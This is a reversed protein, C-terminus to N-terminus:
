DTLIDRFRVQTNLDLLWRNSVPGFTPESFVNNYNTFGYQTSSMVILHYNNRLPQTYTWPTIDYNNFTPTSYGEMFVSELRKDVPVNIRYFCNQEKEVHFIKDWLIEIQDWMREKFFSGVCIVPGTNLGNYPNHVNGHSDFFLDGTDMNRDYIYNSKIVIIRVLVDPRWEFARGFYYFREHGGDQYYGSTQTTATINDVTRVLNEVDPYATTVDGLVPVQTGVGSADTPVPAVFDYKFGTSTTTFPTQMIALSKDSYRIEGNTWQPLAERKSEHLVHLTSTIHLNLEISDIKIKHGVRNFTQNGRAISILHFIHFLQYRQLGTADKTVLQRDNTRKNKFNSSM